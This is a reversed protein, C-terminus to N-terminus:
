HIYCIGGRMKLIFIDSEWKEKVLSCRSRIGFDQGRNKDIWAYKNFFTLTKKIIM